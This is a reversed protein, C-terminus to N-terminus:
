PGDFVPGIDEVEVPEVPVPVSRSSHGELWTYDPAVIVPPPAVVPPPTPEVVRVPAPALVIRAPAPPQTTKCASMMLGAILAVAVGAIWASKTMAPKTM